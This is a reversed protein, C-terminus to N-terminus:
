FKLRQQLIIVQIRFYYTTTYLNLDDQLTVVQRPIKYSAQL